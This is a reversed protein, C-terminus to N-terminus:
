IRTLLRTRVCAPIWSLVAFVLVKVNAPHYYLAVLADKMCCFPRGLRMWISARMRYWHSVYHRLYPIQTNSNLERLAVGVRNQHDPERKPREHRGYGEVLFQAMTRKSYAIKYKGALRAWTLLDEGSRIGLPFGGISQIAEKRVM